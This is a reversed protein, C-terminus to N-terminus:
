IDLTSPNKNAVTHCLEIYQKPTLTNKGANCIWTAWVINEKVYGISSDLRDISAVYPNRSIGYSPIIMEIGSYYCKGDQKEWLALLYNIDLDSKEKSRYKLTNLTRKAMSHLDTKENKRTEKRKLLHCKKCLLGYSRKSQYNLECKFCLRENKPLLKLKLRDVKSKVQVRTLNLIVAAGYTGFHPWWKILQEVKEKTWPKRYYIEM